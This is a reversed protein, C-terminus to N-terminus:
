KRGAKTKVCTCGGKKLEKCTSCRKPVGLGGRGRGAGGASAVPGGGGFLEESGCLECGCGPRYTCALAGPLPAPLPLAELPTWGTLQEAPEM